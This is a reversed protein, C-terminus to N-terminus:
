IKEALSWVMGVDLILGMYGNLEWTSIGAVVGCIAQKGDLRNRRFAFM